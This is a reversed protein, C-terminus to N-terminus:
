FKYKTSPKDGTVVKKSNNLSNIIFQGAKAAAARKAKVNSLKRNAHGVSGKSM